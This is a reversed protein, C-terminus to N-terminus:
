KSDTVACPKSPDSGIVGITWIWGLDKSSSNLEHAEILSPRYLDKDEDLPKFDSTAVDLGLKVM